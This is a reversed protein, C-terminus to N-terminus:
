VSMKWSSSIHKYLTKSGYSLPALQDNRKFLRRNDELQESPRVNEMEATIVTILEYILM